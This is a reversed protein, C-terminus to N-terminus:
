RAIPRSMRWVLDDRREEGVRLFGHREYFRVARENAAAVRLQCEDLGLGSFYRDAYALLERGWGIGRWPPLLYFLSVYGVTRGEVYRPWLEVQGVAVGESAVIRQGDPFHLLRDRLIEHYTAESFADATGHSIAFVDRHFAVIADWDRGLDIARFAPAAGGSM